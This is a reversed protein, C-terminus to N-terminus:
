PHSSASPPVDGLANAHTNEFFSTGLLVGTLALNLVMSVILFTVKIAHWNLQSLRCFFCHPHPCQQPRQDAMPRTEDIATRLTHPRRSQDELTAPQAPHFRHMLRYFTMRTIDFNRCTETVSCSHECYYILWALRERAKLSLKLADAQEQLHRLHEISLSLIPM